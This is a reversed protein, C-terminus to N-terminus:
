LLNGDLNLLSEIGADVSTQWSFNRRVINSAVIGRQTWDEYRDVMDKMKFALDTPVAQSWVAESKDYIQWLKKFDLGIEVMEYKIQMYFGEISTLFESQGSYNNAIVPIGSAIAEILPLGWGEAKSPYVFCDVSNYLNAMDFVSLQGEITKINVLNIEELERKLEIRKEYLNAFCDAKIVLEVNEANGFAIKFAEFLQKYGKRDEYKGIALFRFSRTHNKRSYFERQFPNYMAPCVGCPVVNIKEKDFGISLLINRAWHSPVWILDASNYYNIYVDPLVNSEFFAWVVNRGRIIGFNPSPLFWINIDHGDSLKAVEKILDSDTIDVECIKESFAPMGVFTKTFNEYLVGMGLVNKQGILNIKM